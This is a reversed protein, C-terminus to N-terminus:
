LRERTPPEPSPTQEKSLLPIAGSVRQTSVNCPLALSADLELRVNARAQSRSAILLFAQIAQFRLTARMSPSDIPLV